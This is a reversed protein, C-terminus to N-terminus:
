ASPAWRRSILYAVLLMLSTLALLLAALAAAAPKGHYERALDFIRWVLTQHDSKSGLLRIVSYAGLLYVYLAVFTSVLTPAHAPVLLRWFLQRPPTGLTQAAEELARDRAAVQPFMLLGAVSVGLAFLGLQVAILSQDWSQATAILGLGELWGPIGTSKLLLLKWSYGIVVESMCLLSLLLLIWFVRWRQSLNTILLLAPFMVAVVLASALGTLWISRWTLKLYLPDWFKLYNQGTFSPVFGYRGSGEFVSLALMILVPGLLMIALVLAPYAQILFGFARSLKPDGM